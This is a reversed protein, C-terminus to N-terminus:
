GLEKIKQEDGAIVIRMKDDILYKNAMEMVDEPTCALIEGVQENFYEPYIGCTFSDGVYHAITFPTDLTKMLESLMHQKVTRLEDASMLQERLRAMENKVEKILAWTHQTACCSMVSIFSDNSRGALYGHIGYTYGKDERINMNLRSGFYGGFAMILLRLKFYDPHRRPIARITIAIASQLADKKDVISLMKESPQFAPEEAEDVKRGAKTWKGITSDLIGMEKDTVKGSFVIRVNDTNYYQEHFKKYDETTISLLGEPTLESAMPHSKGYYLRKMEENAMYEVRERATSVNSAIRQQYLMCEQSSFAPSTISDCLIQATSSFNNNLSSLSVLTCHDFPQASKVAGYYDLAEAIQEASMNKNGELTLMGTLYALLPAPEQVCGGGVYIELRNVEDDGDGVIWVPIGNSLTVPTPFNLEVKNFSSIDPQKTRDIM